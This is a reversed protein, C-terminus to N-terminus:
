ESWTGRQDFDRKKGCVKPKEEGIKPRPQFTKENIIDIIKQNKKLM